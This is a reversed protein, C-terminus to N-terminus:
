KFKMNLPIIHCNFEPWFHLLTVNRLLIYCDITVDKRLMKASMVQRGLCPVQFNTRAFRPMIKINAYVFIDRCKM